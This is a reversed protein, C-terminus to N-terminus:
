FLSLAWLVAESIDSVDVTPLAPPTLLESPDASDDNLPQATCPPGQTEGPVCPPPEPPCNTEGAFSATALVFLLTFALTLTKVSKM